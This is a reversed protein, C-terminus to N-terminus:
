KRDEEAFTCLYAAIICFQQAPDWQLELLNTILRFYGQRYLNHTFAFTRAAVATDKSNYRDFDASEFDPYLGSAKIPPHFIVLHIKYINFPIPIYL